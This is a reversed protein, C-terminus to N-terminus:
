PKNGSEDILDQGVRIYSSDIGMVISKEFDRMGLEKSSGSKIYYLFRSFYVLSSASDLEIAEDIDKKANDFEQLFLWAIARDNFIMASKKKNPSLKLAENYDQIAGNFNEMEIRARGRYVFNQFDKGNLEIAKNLDVEAELGQRISGRLQYCKYCLSDVEIAQTAVQIADEHRGPILALYGSKFYYAHTYQPNAQIIEDLVTIAEIYKNEKGFRMAIELKEDPGSKCAFLLILFIFPSLNKLM